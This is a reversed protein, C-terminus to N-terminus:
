RATDRRLAAAAPADVFWLVHGAAPAILQAPLEHPQHPGELVKRVIAAKAGGTVVFAVVAAANIIVPTLTFRWRM